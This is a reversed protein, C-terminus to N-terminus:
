NGLVWTELFLGPLHYQFYGGQQILGLMGSSIYIAYRLKAGVCRQLLTAPGFLYGCVAAAYAPATQIYTKLDTNSTQYEICMFLYVVVFTSFAFLGQKYWMPLRFIMEELMPAMTALILFFNLDFWALLSQLKHSDSTVGAKRALLEMVLECLMIALVCLAYTGFLIVANKILRGDGARFLFLIRRRTNNMQDFM